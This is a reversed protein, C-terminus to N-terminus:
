ASSPMRSLPIHSSNLRTSKRDLMYEPYDNLFNIINDQTLIYAYFGQNDNELSLVRNRSGAKVIGDELWVNSCTGDLKDFIFVEGMEIEETESTNIRCVHQYKHFKM